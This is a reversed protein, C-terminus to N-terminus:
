GLILLNCIELTSDTIQLWRALRNRVLRREALGSLRFIPTRLRRVPDTRSGWQRMCHPEARKSNMAVYRSHARVRSYFTRDFDFPYHCCKAFVNVSQLLDDLQIGALSPESKFIDLRGLFQFKM